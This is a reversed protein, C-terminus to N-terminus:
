EQIWPLGAVKWGGVSGRHSKDDPAGEFGEAVNYCRAFGAATMAIAAAKSRNGSRCIFLVPADEVAGGARVQEAFAPNLQMSPYVQWAAFITKKDLSALDPVGVFTWEPLTRVDVLVAKPDNELIEWAETPSLDGAYEGGPM